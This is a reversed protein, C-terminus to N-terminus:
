NAILLNLLNKLVKLNEKNYDWVLHEYPVPYKFNPNLKCYTIQHHCNSRFCPHVSSDVILNPQDTFILDLCSSLHHMLHTPQSILQHFGPVTTLFELKTFETTIKENTWWALSLIHFDGLIIFFLSNNTATDSLITSFNSLFNQFEVADKSPSRYVVGIYDKNNLIFVECIICESLSSFNVVRVSM